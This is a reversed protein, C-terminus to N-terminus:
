EFAKSIAIEVHGGKVSVKVDDAISAVISKELEDWAEEAQANGERSEGVAKKYEHLTWIRTEGGTQYGTSEMSMFGLALGSLISNGFEDPLLAVAIMEKIKGMFGKAAASNEGSTSVAILQERMDRTMTVDACLNLTFAKGEQSLCYDAEVDGAIGRMVGVLEEALLRLRLKEKKELGAVDGAKETMELSEPMGAGSSTVKVIESKM